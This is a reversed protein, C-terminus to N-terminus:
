CRWMCVLCESSVERQRRREAKAEEVERKTVEERRWKERTKAAATEEDDESDSILHIPSLLTWDVLTDKTLRISEMMISLFCISFCHPM